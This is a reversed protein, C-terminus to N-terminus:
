PFNTLSLTSRNIDFRGETIEIIDNPNNKNQVTCSFTGSVIGNDLDYRSITLIGGSEKSCYWKFVQSAENWWRCTININQIADLGDECNSENITFVGEGYQEINDFHIKVIGGTGSKFDRVILENYIYNPPDGLSVFRMGRDPVGLLGDGDRPTLLNGDIFCGFTNEGTQTIPPLTPTFGDDKSCSSQLLLFIGFVLITTKM